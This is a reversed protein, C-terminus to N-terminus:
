FCANSLFNLEVLLLLVYKPRCMFTQGIKVLHPVEISKWLLGWYWIRCFDTLHLWVWLTFPCTSLLVLLRICNLHLCSGHCILTAPCMLSYEHRWAFFQNIKGIEVLSPNTHCKFTGLIVNWSCGGMPFLVYSHLCIFPHVSPWPSPVPHNKHSHLHISLLGPHLCQTSKTVICIRRCVYFLHLRRGCVGHICVTTLLVAGNM